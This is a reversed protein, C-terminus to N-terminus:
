GLDKKILNFVQSMRNLALNERRSHLSTINSSVLKFKNAMSLGGESCEKINMTSNYSTRNKNKKQQMDVLM